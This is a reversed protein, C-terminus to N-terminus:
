RTTSLVDANTTIMAAGCASTQTPTKESTHSPPDHYRQSGNWCHRASKQDQFDQIGTLLSGSTHWRRMRTPLKTHKGTWWDCVSLTTMAATKWCCIMSGCCIM